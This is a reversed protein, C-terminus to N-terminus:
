GSCHSQSLIVGTEKPNPRAISVNRAVSKQRIRVPKFFDKQTTISVQRDRRDEDLQITIEKLKNCLDEERKRAAAMETAFFM